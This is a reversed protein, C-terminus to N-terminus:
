APAAARKRKRPPKPVLRGDVVPNTHRRGELGARRLAANVAHAAAEQTDFSGIHRQKSNEDNYVARWGRAKMDWYVGWFKSTTETSARMPDPAIVASRDRAGGSKPVLAGSADVANTHRKRCDPPLARIVKERARAAEEDDVFYGICRQTGDADRYSAKWKKRSKDWNVGWFRSSKRAGGEGLYPATEDGSDYAVTSDGGLSRDDYEEAEERAARRNRLEPVVQWLKHVDMEDLRASVLTSHEVDCIDELTCGRGRLIQLAGAASLRCRVAELEAAFSGQAADGSDYAATSDGGLSQDDDADDAVPAPTPMMAVPAPPAVAAEPVSPAAPPPGRGVVRLREVFVVAGREAIEALGHRRELVRCPGCPAHEAALVGECHSNPASQSLRSLCEAGAFRRRRPARLTLGWARILISKKCM